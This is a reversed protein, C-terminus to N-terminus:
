ISRINELPAKVQIRSYGVKRMPASLDPKRPATYLIFDQLLFTLVIAVLACFIISTWRSFHHSTKCWILIAWSWLDETPIVFLKRKFCAQLIWNCHLGARRPPYPGHSAHSCRFDAFLQLQCNRAKFFFFFNKLYILGMLVVAILLSPLLYLLAVGGYFDLLLQRM